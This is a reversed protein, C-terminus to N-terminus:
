WVGWRAAAGKREVPEPKPESSAEMRLVQIAASITIPNRLYFGVNAGDHGGIGYRKAIATYSMGISDASRLVRMAEQQIARM